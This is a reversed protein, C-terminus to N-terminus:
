YYSNMGGPDFNSTIIFTAILALSLLELVTSVTKNKPYIADIESENLRINVLKGSIKKIGYFESDKVSIYRFKHKEGDRNVVKAMVKERAIEDLGVPTNKYVVCGQLLILLSLLFSLTKTIFPRM